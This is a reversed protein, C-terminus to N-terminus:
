GEVGTKKMERLIIRDPEGPLATTESGAQPGTTTLFQRVLLSASIAAM